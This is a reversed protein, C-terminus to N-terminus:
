VRPARCYPCIAVLLNCGACVQINCTGAPCPCVMTSTRKDQLCVPCETTEEGEELPPDSVVFPMSQRVMPELLDWDYPNLEEPLGMRRRWFPLFSQAEEETYPIGIEPMFWLQTYPNGMRRMWWARDAQRYKGRRRRHNEFFEETVGFYKFVETDFAKFLRNTAEIVERAKEFAEDESAETGRLVERLGPALNPKPNYWSINTYSKLERLQQEDPVWNIYLSELDWRTQEEPSTFWEEWESPFERDSSFKPKPNGDRWNAAWFVDWCLARINEQSIRKLGEITPYMIGNVEMKEGPPLDRLQWELSSPANELDCVVWRPTNPPIEGRVRPMEERLIKLTSVRERRDLEANIIEVLAGGRKSHRCVEEWDTQTLPLPERRSSTPNEFAGQRSMIVDLLFLFSM